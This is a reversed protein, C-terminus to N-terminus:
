FEVLNIQVIFVKFVRHIVEYPAAISQEMAAAFRSEVYYM